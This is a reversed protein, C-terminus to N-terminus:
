LKMTGRNELSNRKNLDADTRSRSNIKNDKIARQKGGLTSLNQNQDNKMAAGDEFM